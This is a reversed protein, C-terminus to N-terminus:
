QAMGYGVWKLATDEDICIPNPNTTRVVTVEGEMCELPEQAIADNYNVFAFAILPIIALLTKNEM